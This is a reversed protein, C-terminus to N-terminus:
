SGESNSLPKLNPLLVEQTMAYCYRGVPCDIPTPSGATTSEVSVNATPGRVAITSAGAVSVFATRAYTSAGPCAADPFSGIRTGNSCVFIVSFGRVNPALDIPDETEGCAVDSRQLTGNTVGYRVERCAASAAFQSSMYRMELTPGSADLTLCGTAFCGGFSSIQNEIRGADNIGITAGALSLDQTLLQTVVRLTDQVENRAQVARQLQIQQAFFTGALGLVVVLITAAILLEIFTVGSLSSPRRPVVQADRMM